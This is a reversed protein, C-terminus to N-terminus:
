FSRKVNKRFSKRKLKNTRKKKSKNKSGGKSPKISGNPLLIANVKHKKINQNKLHEEFHLLVPYEEDGTTRHLPREFGVYNVDVDNIKYTKGIKYPFEPGLTYNVMEIEEM